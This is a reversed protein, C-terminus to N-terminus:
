GLIEATRASAPLTGLQRGGDGAIRSAIFADAAAPNAERAMLAAQTGVAIREVLRRALMGGGEAKAVAEDVGSDVADFTVGAAALLRARVASKSALVVPTM